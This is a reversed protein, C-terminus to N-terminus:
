GVCTNETAFRKAPEPAGLHGVWRRILSNSLEAVDWFVVM